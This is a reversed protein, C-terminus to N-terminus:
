KFYQLSGQIWGPDPKGLLPAARLFGDPELSLLVAGGESPCIATLTGTLRLGEPLPELNLVQNGEPMRCCCSLIVQNGGRLRYKVGETQGVKQSPPRIGEALGLDM